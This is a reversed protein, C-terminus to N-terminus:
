LLRAYKNQQVLRISIYLSRIISQEEPTKAASELSAISIEPFLEHYIFFYRFLYKTVVSSSYIIEIQATPTFWYKGYFKRAVYPYCYFSAMGFQSLSHSMDVGHYILLIWAREIPPFFAQSDASSLISQVFPSLM